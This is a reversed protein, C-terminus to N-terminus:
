CSDLNPDDSPRPMQQLSWELWGTPSEHRSRQRLTPPQVGLSLKSFAQDIAESIKKHKQSHRFTHCYRYCYYYYHNTTVTATNTAAATTAVAAGTGTATTATTSHGVGSATGRTERRRMKRRSRRTRDGCCRCQMTSKATPQMLFMMTINIEVVTEEDDFGHGDGGADADDPMMLRGLRGTDLRGSLEFSNVNTGKRREPVGFAVCSKLCPRLCTKANLPNSM